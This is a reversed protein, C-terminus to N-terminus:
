RRTPFSPLEPRAVEGARVAVEIELAGEGARISLVHRGPPLSRVRFRGSADTVIPPWVRRPDEVDAVLVLAGEVPELSPTWIRGEVAGARLELEVSEPGTHELEAAGGLDPWTGGAAWSPLITVRYKGLVLGEVAFSGDEDTTVRRQVAGGLVDPPSEPVLVLEYGKPDGWAAASGLVRGELDARPADPVGPPPENRPPLVLEVPPGGAAARFARPPFGWALVTADTDGEFLRGLEFAGKEDTYTWHPVGGSRLYVSAQPVPEGEPDLVRGRLVLSGEPAVFPDFQPPQTPTFSPLGSDPAAWRDSVLGVLIGVLVVIPLLLTARKM